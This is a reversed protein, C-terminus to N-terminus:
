SVIRLKKPTASVDITTASFVCTERWIACAQWVGSVILTLVGRLCFNLFVIRAFAFVTERKFDLSLAIFVLNGVEGLFSLM